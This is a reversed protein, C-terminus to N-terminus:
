GRVGRVHAGNRGLRQAGTTAGARRMQFPTSTVVGIVYASFRHEQRVADRVITRVAPMDYHQFVRGTAFMLLNRTFNTLFLDENNLLFRRLSLPGDLRTGDYLTGSPDVPFGSDKTRWAGVADFSELAFGIPDIINHCAACFANARHEVTRERVSLHEAGTENEQLPPVNAPPTPLPTGLLVDLIWAGRIVPSTRNSVSTLTLIGAQGLLGRRHEDAVPVRRFRPGMINPLEYHKALREDVFTYDATLLDLLSRDERVISDFFLETERRM